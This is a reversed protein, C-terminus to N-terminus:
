GIRFSSYYVIRAAILHIGVVNEVSVHRKEALLDHRVSQTVNTTRSVGLVFEIRVGVQRIERYIRTESPGLFQIHPRLVLM